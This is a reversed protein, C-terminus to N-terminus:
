KENESCAYMAIVQEEIGILSCIKLEIEKLNKYIKHYLSWNVKFSDLSLPTLLYLLHLENSVIIKKNAKLLDLYVLLGEEPSM